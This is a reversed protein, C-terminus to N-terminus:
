KKQEKLVGHIEYLVAHILVLSEFFETQKKELAEIREIIQKLEDKM